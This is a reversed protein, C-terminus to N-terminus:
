KGRVRHVLQTQTHALPGGHGAQALPIANMYRVHHERELEEQAAEGYLPADSQAGSSPIRSSGTTVKARKRSPTFPPRAAVSHAVITPTLAPAARSLFTSLRRWSGTVWAHRNSM